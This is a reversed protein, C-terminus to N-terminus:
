REVIREIAHEIKPNIAHSRSRAIGYEIMREALQVIVRRLKVTVSISM